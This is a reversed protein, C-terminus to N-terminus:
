SKTNENTKQTLSIIIHGIGNCDNCELDYHYGAVGCDECHKVEIEQMTNNTIKKFDSGARGMIRM